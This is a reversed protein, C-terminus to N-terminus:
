LGVSAGLLLWAVVGHGVCVTYAYAYTYDQGNAQWSMRLLMHLLPAKSIIHEINTNQQCCVTFLVHFYHPARM